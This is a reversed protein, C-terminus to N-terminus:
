PLRLFDVASALSLRLGGAGPTPLCSEPADIITALERTRRQVEALNLAM